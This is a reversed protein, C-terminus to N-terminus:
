GKREQRRIKLLDTLYTYQDRIFLFTSEGQTYEPEPPILISLYKAGTIRIIEVYMYKGGTFLGRQGPSM